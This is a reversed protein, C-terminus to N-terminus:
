LGKQLAPLPRSPRSLQSNRGSPWSFNPPGGSSLSPDPPGQPPSPYTLIGKWLDPLLQSPCSLNLTGVQPSSHNPPGGLPSAPTQLGEQRSPLPCSTRCYPQSPDSTRGLTDPTGVPTGPPTPLGERLAQCHRASTSPFGTSVRFNSLHERPWVSLQSFNMSLGTAVCFTKPFDLPPM